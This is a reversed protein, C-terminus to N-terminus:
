HQATLASLVADADFPKKFFHDFNSQGGDDITQGSMGVFTCGRLKPEARFIALLAHGDVVPMRIDVIAVDPVFEDLVGLGESASHSVRVEFGADDLIAAVAEAFETDDDIVLVRRSNLASGTNADSRSPM